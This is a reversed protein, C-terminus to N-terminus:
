AGSAFAHARDDWDSLVYVAKILLGGLGQREPGHQWFFIRWATAGEFLGSLFDWQDWFMVNVASRNIFAYLRIGLVTFAIAIAAVIIRRYRATQVPLGKGDMM